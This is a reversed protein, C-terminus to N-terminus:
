FFTLIQNYCFLMLGIKLLDSSLNLPNATSQSLIRALFNGFEHKIESSEHALFIVLNAM